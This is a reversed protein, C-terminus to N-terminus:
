APVGAGEIADMEEVLVRWVEDDGAKVGLRALSRVLVTQIWLGAQKALEIRKEDVKMQHALTLNKTLRDAADTELKVLARVGEDVGYIRGSRDADYKQGVLATVGGLAFVRQLDRRATQLEPHEPRRRGEDDVEDQEDIVTIQEAAASEKLREAAAYADKVLKGYFDTKWRWFAILRLVETAPDIRALQDDAFDDLTRMGVYEARIKGAAEEAALKEAHKINNPMSGGHNRCDGYGLHSTGHGATRQCYGKHNGDEDNGKNGGCLPRGDPYQRSAKGVYRPGHRGGPTIDGM